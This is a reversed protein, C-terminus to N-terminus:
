DGRMLAGTPATGAGAGASSGAGAGPAPPRVYAPSVAVQAVTTAAGGAPNVAFLWAPALVPAQGANWRQLLGFRAGTVDTAPVSACVPRTSDSGGDAPPMGKLLPCYRQYRVPTTQVRLEDLAARASVVPYSSGASPAGLWGQASVVGSADLTVVTSYGMTPLGGVTPSSEVTSATTGTRVTADRTPAGSASLIPAAARRASAEDPADPARFWRTTGPGLRVFNWPHGPIDAVSLTADGDALTLRGGQQRPTGRLGLAAVLRDLTAPPLDAALRYVTARDPGAPLTGRLQYGGTPRPAGDLASGMARVGPGATTSALYLPDPTAPHGGSRLGGYAAGATALAAVALAAAPLARYPRGQQRVTAEHM